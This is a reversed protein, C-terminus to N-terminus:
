LSLSHYLEVAGANDRARDAVAAGVEVFKVNEPKHRLFGRTFARARRQALKAPSHKGAMRKLLEVCFIVVFATISCQMRWAISASVVCTVQALIAVPVFLVFFHICNCPGQM